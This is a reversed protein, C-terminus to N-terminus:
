SFSHRLAEGKCNFALFVFSTSPPLFTNTLPSLILSLKPLSNATDLTDPLNDVVQIYDFISGPLVSRCLRSVGNPVSWMKGSGVTPFARTLEQTYVSLAITEVTLGPDTRLHISVDRTHAKFGPPLQKLKSRRSLQKM